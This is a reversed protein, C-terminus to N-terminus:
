LLPQLLGYRAKASLRPRELLGLYTLAINHALMPSNKIAGISVVPLVQDSIARLENNLPLLGGYLQALERVGAHWMPASVHKDDLDFFIKELEILSKPDLAMVSALWEDAHVDLTDYPSGRPTVKWSFM